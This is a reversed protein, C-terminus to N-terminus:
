QHLVLRRSAHLRDSRTACRGLCRARSANSYGVRAHWISSRAPNDGDAEFRRTIMAVGAKGTAAAATPTLVPATFAIPKAVLPEPQAVAAVPAYKVTGSHRGVM